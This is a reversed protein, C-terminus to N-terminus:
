YSNADCFSLDDYIYEQEQHSAVVLLLSIQFGLIATLHSWAPTSSSEMSPQRSYSLHYLMPRPNLDWRGMKVM